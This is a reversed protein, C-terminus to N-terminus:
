VGVRAGPEVMGRLRYVSSLGVGLERAAIAPGFEAAMERVRAPDISPKRGKYKGERRAKAVGERQRELMIDREFAAIAALVTLLLRSTPNRTDLREGGMSLLIL